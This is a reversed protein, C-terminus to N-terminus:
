NSASVIGQQYKINNKLTIMAVSWLKMPIYFLRTYATPFLLLSLQLISWKKKPETNMDNIAFFFM